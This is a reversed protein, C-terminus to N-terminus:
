SVRYTHAGGNAPTNYQSGGDNWFTGVTDSCTTNAFTWGSPVPAAALDAALSGECYIVPAPPQTTPTTVAPTASAAAQTASVAAAGASQAASNASGAASNAAVVPDSGAPLTTEVVPAVMSPTTTVPAVPATTTPVTADARQVVVKPPAAQHGSTAIVGGLAGLTLVGVGILSGRLVKSIKQTENTDM